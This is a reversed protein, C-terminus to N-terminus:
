RAARLREAAKLPRARGLVMRAARQQVVPQPVIRDLARARREHRDLEVRRDVREGLVERQAQRRPPTEIREVRAHLRASVRRRQSEPLRDIERGLVARAQADRLALAHADDRPAAGHLRRDPEIPSQARPEREHGQVKRVLDVRVHERDVRGIGLRAGGFELRRGDADFSTQHVQVQNGAGHRRGVLALGDVRDDIRRQAPLRRRAAGAVHQQGRQVRHVRADAPDAFARQIVDALPQRHRRGLGVADRREVGHERHRRSRRRDHVHAVVDGAAHVARFREAAVELRPEAVRALGRQVAARHPHATRTEAQAIARRGREELEGASRARVPRQGAGRGVVM